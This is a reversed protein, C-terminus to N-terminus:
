WGSFPSSFMLSRRVHFDQCSTDATIRAATIPMAILPFRPEAVPVLAADPPPPYLSGGGLEDVALVVPPEAVLDAVPAPVAVVVVVAAPAVLLVTAPEDDVVSGALPAVWDVALVVGAATPGAVIRTGSTCCVPLQVLGAKVMEPPVQFM